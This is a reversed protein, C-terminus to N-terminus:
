QNIRLAQKLQKAMVVRQTDDMTTRGFEVEKDHSGIMLSTKGNEGERLTIRTWYRQFQMRTTNGLVCQEIEVSEQSIIIKEYDGGHRMVMVFALFVLLLEFGAFPLVLWAGIHMFGFAIVMSLLTLAVLLKVVSLGSASANPKTVFQLETASTSELM